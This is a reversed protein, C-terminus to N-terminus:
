LRVASVALYSAFGIVALCLSWAACRYWGHMRQGRPLATAELVLLFGLVVPLLLANMVEVGIALSVLDASVLVLAAGAVHALVYTLYFGASRRGPRQNLTHKWGSIESLGWAGALSSVLAAVLAAGLMGTGFLIKAGATGLFPRLAGSIEGVTGLSTGTRLRGATAALTVVVAIMVLQTVVAGVATGARERRIGAPTLGKDIVASQQYFIMWPMIVAGVNAALLYRYSSSRLPLSGLGSLVAHGDPHSLLMAPIFALEALGLAIGVREVRRYSGTLALAVLFATAVPVTIWRSVGFLEGVGAVAAFETILAGIASAVLTGASLMAWGRGFRERILAGHGAGTLIGLRVTMEQVVCLVPILMLQPLVMRYGWRAGSQAATILSGADTDALMVVLGPGLVALLALRPWALGALLPRARSRQGTLATTGHTM